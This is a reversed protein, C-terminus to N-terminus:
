TGRETVPQLLRERVSYAGAYTLEREAKEVEDEGIIAAETLVGEDFNGTNGDAALAQRTYLRKIGFKEAGHAV